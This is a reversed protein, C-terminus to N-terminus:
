RGTRRRWAEAMAIRQEITPHSQMILYSWAPPNPDALATASFREFLEEAAEPDKTTELAIWDAEAEM